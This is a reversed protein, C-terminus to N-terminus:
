TKTVSFFVFACCLHLPPWNVYHICINMLLIQVGFGHVNNTCVIQSFLTKARICRGAYCLIKLFAHMQLRTNGALINGNSNLQKHILKSSRCRQM